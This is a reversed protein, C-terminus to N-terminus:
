GDGLTALREVQVAQQGSLGSFNCMAYLVIDCLLILNQDPIEKEATLFSTRSGWLLSAGSIAIRKQTDHCDFVTDLQLCPYRNHM